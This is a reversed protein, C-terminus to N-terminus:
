KLRSKIYELSQKELAARPAAYRIALEYIADASELADTRMLLNGYDFLVDGVIPEPPKVFQLRETLQAFIARKTAGADLAQGDNGRPFRSPANPVRGSGFGMALISHNDLWKSDRALNLKTELILAHLWESGDHSKPNRRIGERIWHLARSNDGALEYATGLNTATAYLGPKEREIQTLIDIANAVEGLHLLAAALDNREELTARAGKVVVRAKVRGWEPLRRETMTVVLDQGVLSESEFKKGQLDTGYTNICALAPAASLVMAVLAPLVRM